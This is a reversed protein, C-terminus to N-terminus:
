DFPKPNHPDMAQSIVGMLNFNPPKKNSYDWQGGLQLCPHFPLSIDLKVGDLKEMLTMMKLPMM